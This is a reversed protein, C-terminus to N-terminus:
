YGIRKQLGRQPKLHQGFLSVESARRFTKYATGYKNRNMRWDHVLRAPFLITIWMFGCVSLYRKECVSIKSGAFYDLGWRKKGQKCM